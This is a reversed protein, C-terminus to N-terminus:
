KKIEAVMQYLQLCFSDLAESLKKIYEQDPLVKVILPRIGPYYSIFWWHSLGTVMLSGQVQANYDSKPFKGELLYKIHTKMKPCKVELGGGDDCLGDPSIHYKKHEDPYCLAVERVNIKTEWVFTRRADEEREIGIEMDRSVYHEEAKGSVIEGALQMAYATASKSPEGKVNTVIKDFSSAGPNGLRASFWLPDLQPFSDIVIM